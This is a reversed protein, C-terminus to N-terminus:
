PRGGGAGGSMRTVYGATGQIVITRMSGQDAGIRAAGDDAVPRCGAQKM